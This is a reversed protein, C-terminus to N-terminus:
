PEAAAISSRQQGCQGHSLRRNNQIIKHKSCKENGVKQLKSMIGKENM